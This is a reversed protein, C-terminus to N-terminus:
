KELVNLYRNRKILEETLIRQKETSLNPNDAFIKLIDAMKQQQEQILTM